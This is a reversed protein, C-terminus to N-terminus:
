EPYNLFDFEIYNCKIPCIIEINAGVAKKAAPKDTSKFRSRIPWNRLILNHFKPWIKYRVNNKM